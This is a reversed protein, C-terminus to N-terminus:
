PRSSCSTKVPADPAISCVPPLAKAIARSLPPIVDAGQYEKPVTVSIYPGRDVTTYVAADGDGPVADWFPGRAPGIVFYQAGSGRHLNTPREAGCSLLVAPDGWAVVYPTEPETHVVRPDLDGLEVPLKALVKACPATQAVANPPAPATV